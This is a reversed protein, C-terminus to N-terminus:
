NIVYKNLIYIGLSHAILLLVWSELATLIVSLTLETAWFTMQRQNPKLSFQMFNTKKLNLLLLNTQFWKNIKDFVLDIEQKFIMVDPQTFIINTDDAFITPKWRENIVGPLDNIYLLFLLAGLILGQPVGQKVEEWESYYNKSYRNKVTSM